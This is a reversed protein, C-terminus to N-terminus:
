YKNGCQRHALLALIEKNGFGLSSPTQTRQGTFVHDHRDAGWCGASSHARQLLHLSLHLPHLQAGAQLHALQRRRLLAVACWEHRLMQLLRQCAAGAGTRVQTVRVHRSKVLQDAAHLGTSSQWTVGFGVFIIYTDQKVCVATRSQIASMILRNVNQWLDHTVHIKHQIKRNTGLPAYHQRIVSYHDSIAKIQWVTDQM